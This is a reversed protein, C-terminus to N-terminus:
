RPKGDIASQTFDAARTCEDEITTLLTYASVTPADIFDQGYWFDPTLYIKTSHFANEINIVTAPNPWASHCRDILAQISSRISDGLPTHVLLAVAVHLDDGTSDKVALMNRASDIYRTARRLSFLISDTKLTNTRANAARASASDAAHDPSSGCGALVLAFLSSYLLPRSSTLLPHM